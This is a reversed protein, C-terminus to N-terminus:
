GGPSFVGSAMEIARIAPFSGYPKERGNYPLHFFPNRALKDQLHQRVEDLIFESAVLEHHEVCHEFLVSCAGRAIFAAILVNTDLVVKM